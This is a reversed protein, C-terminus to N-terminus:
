LAGRHWPGTIAFTIGPDYVNVFLWDGTPDFCAGAMERKRFDGVLGNREGNLIVNNRAFEFATGNPRLGILREPDAGGDECLLVGGRPSVVMNDPSDLVSEMTSAYIVRILERHPDYCWVVGEPKGSDLAPVGADSDVFYALGNHFAAGELRHFRAGGKNFGEEFVGSAKTVPGGFGSYPGVNSVPDQAPEDITVWEVRYWDGLKSMHLNAQPQGVVKLMELTGGGAYGVQRLENISAHPRFRYFGSTNRDDETLYAVGTVPHVAVAEHFFRGMDHIPVPNAPGVLPVEFVWGHNKEFGQWVSAVNEECTLWSNWPTTGGACNRNTGSLSPTTSVHQATQTDFTLTTTGGPSLLDYSVSQSAFPVGPGNIEHNRVLVAYRGDVLAIAGMGDANPPTPLGGVMPDGQWGFSTYHFGDPLELLELGTSADPVPAIAGYDGWPPFPGAPKRREQAVSRIAALAGLAGHQLFARRGPILPHPM